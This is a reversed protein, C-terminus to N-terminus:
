AALRGTMDKPRVRRLWEPKWPEKPKSEAIRRQLPGLKPQDNM